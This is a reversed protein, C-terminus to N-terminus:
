ISKPKYIYDSAIRFRKALSPETLIQELPKVGHNKIIKPMIKLSYSCNFEKRVRPAMSQYMGCMVGEFGEKPYKVKMESGTIETLYKVLNVWQEESLRAIDSGSDIGSLYECAHSRSKEDSLEGYMKVFLESFDGEKTPLFGVISDKRQRKSLRANHKGILSKDKRLPGYIPEIQGIESQRVYIGGDSEYFCCAGCGPVCVSELNIGNHYNILQLKNM